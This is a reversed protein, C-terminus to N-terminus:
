ISGNREHKKKKPRARSVRKPMDISTSACVVCNCRFRLSDIMVVIGLIIVCDVPRAGCLRALVCSRDIHEFEISIPFDHLRHLTTTAAIRIIFALHCVISLADWAWRGSWICISSFSSASACVRISSFLFPRFFSGPVRLDIPSHCIFDFSSHFQGCRRSIGGREGGRRWRANSSLNQM